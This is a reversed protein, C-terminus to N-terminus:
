ALSRGAVTAAAVPSVQQRPVIRQDGSPPWAPWLRGTKLFRADGAPAPVLGPDDPASLVATVASM